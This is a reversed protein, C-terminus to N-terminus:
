FRIRVGTGIEFGGAGVEVAPGVSGQPLTLDASGTSYRVMLGAGVHRTFMYATDFGLHFGTIRHSEQSRAVGGLEVTPPTAGTETSTISEVIESEVKFFTPGAFLTMDFDVTVPFRLSAQVHLARERHELGAATGSLARHRNLILPHPVLASVTVDRTHKSELTHALGVSLAKWIRVGGSAEISGGSRIAHPVEFIGKEGYLTFETQQVFEQSLSRFGGNLNVFAKNPPPPPIWSTTDQGYGRAAFLVITVLTLLAPRM